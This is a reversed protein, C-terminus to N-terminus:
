RRGATSLRRPVRRPAPMVSVLFSMSTARGRTPISPSAAPSFDMRAPWREVSCRQHARRGSAAHRATRNAEGTSSEEECGSRKGISASWSASRSRSKSRISRNAGQPYLLSRPTSSPAHDSISRDHRSSTGFTMSGNAPPPELDSSAGRRPRETSALSKLATATRMSLASTSSGGLNEPWLGMWGSRWALTWM